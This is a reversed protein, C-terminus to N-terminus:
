RAGRLVPAVASAPAPPAAPAPAGPVVLDDGERRLQAPTTVGLLQFTRELQEALLALVRGVGPGGAAALGYLYPRGVMCLDAGRALAVAIDAGHRVGSDVIVAVGDGVAQRVPRVLEIAPVTRDLQRGGHNSLYLGDVGAGVARVADRPGIPGKLLLPGPWWRRVLELDAWDLAPDFAAGIDAVTQGAPGAESLNAFELMPSALM